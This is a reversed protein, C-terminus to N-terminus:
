HIAATASKKFNICVFVIMPELFSLRYSIIFFYGYLCANLNIDACANAQKKINIIPIRIKAPKIVFLTPLITNEVM